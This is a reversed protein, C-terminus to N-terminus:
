DGKSPHTGARRLRLVGLLIQGSLLPLLSSIVIVLWGDPGPPVMNLVSSLAPIFVTALLLALCFLTAGWVWRSSVVNNRILGAHADRMNFVHWLQAFGISIFAITAAGQAGVELVFLSFVFAALVSLSIAVGHFMIMGWHVRTLIPEDAPRPPRKDISADGEGMALAFAPFVDTVLNLFLIQLPLLPLPLGALLALAILLVEGLNCSLLYVCLQRINSFIVRGERIALVITSFADDRLVIDSAERAVDTGRIGMAVGIDAKRLAPADNVGDGTMAVVHGKAQWAAVLDFKNEPTARAHVDDGFADKDLGVSRAIASATVPHDGTVMVVRLGADHCANIATQIDGRPPDRLAAIGLLTLGAYPDSIDSDAYREALAIMRYGEAALAAMETEIKQRLAPTFPQEEGASIVSTVHDLVAEPAGKVAAFVRSEADDDRHITAMMRLGPDFAFERIRPHRGLHGICDRGDLRGAELLAVELPDGTTNGSIEDLTANSCLLGVRLAHDLATGPAPADKCPTIRGQGHDVEYLGDVTLLFSVTMRNETLTGTKDTMIVSATGLTEVAGLTRVVANSHAMRLMGRALALTGVIPLGEPIAAVALAIAAEVMQRWPQGSWLGLLGILVTVGLTLWILQRTLVALREELPSASDEGAEVLLAIRGLETSRGTATVVAEAPGNTLSTGKFLMSTREHIAADDTVAALAKGVPVSEGTLASEDVSLKSVTLLRADAPVQDGAELIIIDGPVLDEAPLVLIYGDRRVRTVLTDLRRLAEMSRVARFEAIFGILTNIMLVSAIAVTEAWDGLSASLGMAAALLAVVPSAFQRVLIRLASVSKRGAVQNKGYRAQRVDIEGAGLGATQATGTLALVDEPSRAHMDAPLSVGDRSGAEAPEVRRM